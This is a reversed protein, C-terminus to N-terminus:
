RRPAARSARRADAAHLRLGERHAKAVLREEAVPLGGWQKVCDEWELLQDARLAPTGVCRRPQELGGAAVLSREWWDSLTPEGPLVFSRPPAAAAYRTALDRCFQPPYAGALSTRWHSKRGVENEITVTGQLQVHRLGGPCHRAFGDLSPLTGVIATPKKFAAGYACMHAVQSTAGQLVVQRAFPKWTLLGSSAPNELTWVVQHRRCLRLLSVTRLACAMGLQDVTGGAKGTTRATSWRSCPTGFHIAWVRGSRVWRCVEGFIKDDLLDFQKGSLIEFPPGVRLRKERWAASLRGVGSFLELVVPGRPLGGRLPARARARAARPARGRAASARGRDPRCARRM